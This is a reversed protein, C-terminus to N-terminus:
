QNVPERVCAHWAAAHPRDVLDQGVPLEGGALHEDVDLGALPGHLNGAVRDFQRANTCERQLWGRSETLVRLFDAPRHCPAIRRLPLTAISVARPMRVTTVRRASMRKLTVDTSTASVSTGITAASAPPKPVCIPAKAISPM